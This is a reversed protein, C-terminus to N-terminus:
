KILEVKYIFYETDGQWPFVWYKQRYYVKVQKGSFSDLDKVVQEESPNVSFAFKQPNIRDETGVRLEGEYTKFVNGKKSFKDLFGSRSGESYTAFSMFSAYAIFGVLVVVIGIILYKKFNKM